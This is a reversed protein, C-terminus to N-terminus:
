SLEDWDKRKIGAQRLIEYVLAVSIESRHKNPIHVKLSGKRMFAHRGGSHPGDFGLKKFNKILKRRSIHKPM